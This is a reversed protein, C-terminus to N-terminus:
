SSAAGALMDTKSENCSGNKSSATGLHLFEHLIAECVATLGIIFYNRLRRSTFVRFPSIPPHFTHHIRPYRCIAYFFGQNKTYYTSSHSQM